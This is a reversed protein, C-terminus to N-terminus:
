GHDAVAEPALDIRPAFAHGHLSLAHTIAREVADAVRLALQRSAESDAETLHGRDMAHQVTALAGTARALAGRLARVERALTDWDGARIGEVACSPSAHREALHSAQLLDCARNHLDVLEASRPHETESLALALNTSAMWLYRVADLGPQRREPGTYVTPQCSDSPIMCLEKNRRRDLAMRRLIQVASPGEVRAGAIAPLQHIPVARLAARDAHTVAAHSM